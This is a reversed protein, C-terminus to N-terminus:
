MLTINMTQLDKDASSNGYMLKYEGPTVCMTNSKEDFCEFSSAPIVIEINQEEGPKLTVRKYGKLSKLPGNTDSIKKIYIQVIETGARKGINKVPLTLKISDGDKIKSKDAGAKGIQFDTYSLGYGFQYLPDSMYRYTRGKMSYDEYDPLQSISKYFTVPLKGSPNYDGFLIDAVANGGQEGSYWAQLIADCSETEPVLGMASGSCNVFIVKKGAAKLEKLFTRQVAPLEIDTRDGGKFGPLDIPMEEGELQPSIGGVFVVVDVDKLKNISANYDLPLERGLDFKLNANYTEIQAYRLEINYKKGKEVKFPIKYETDRWSRSVKISKGDVFLEWYSAGAIRFVIDETVSPTLM